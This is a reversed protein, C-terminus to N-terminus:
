REGEGQSEKMRKEEGKGGSERGQHLYGAPCLSEPRRWLRPRSAGRWHGKWGPRTDRSTHKM